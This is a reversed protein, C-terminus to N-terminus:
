FQILPTDKEVKQNKEVLLRHIIGDCNSRLINEMKMAKLILLPDGNKVVDGEAVKIDVILGPMPATLNESKKSKRRKIGLNELLLDHESKIELKYIRKNVNVKLRNSLPDIGSVDAIYSRRKYIIQYRNDDLAFIELDKKEGNVLYQDDIKDILFDREGDVNIKYM